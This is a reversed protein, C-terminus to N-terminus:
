MKTEYSCREIFAASLSGVRAGPDLLRVEGSVADFLSAMFRGISVPTMYQGLGSRKKPDLKLSANIRYLDAIEAFASPM